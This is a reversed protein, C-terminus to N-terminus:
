EWEEELEEKEFKFYSHPYKTNEYTESGGCKGCIHDYYTGRSNSYAHGTAKMEGNCLEDKCKKRVAVKKM